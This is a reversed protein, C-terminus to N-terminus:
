WMSVNSVSVDAFSELLLPAGVIMMLLWAMRMIILQASRKMTMMGKMAMLTKLRLEM